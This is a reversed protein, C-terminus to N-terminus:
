HLGIRGATPNQLWLDTLTEGIRCNPKAPEILKLQVGMGFSWNLMAKAVFEPGKENQDGHQGL